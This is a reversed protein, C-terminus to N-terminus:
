LLSLMVVISNGEKSSSSSSALVTSVKQISQIYSRYQKQIMPRLRIIYPLCYYYFLISLTLIIVEYCLQQITLQSHYLILQSIIYHCKTYLQPVVYTNMVKTGHPFIIRLLIYRIWSFIYKMTMTMFIFSSLIARYTDYSAMYFATSWLIWDPNHRIMDIHCIQSIQLLWIQQVTTTMWVVVIDKTTNTTMNASNIQSDQIQVILISLFVIIVITKMNWLYSSLSSSSSSTVANSSRKSSQQPLSVNSHHEPRQQRRRAQPQHQQQKTATINM